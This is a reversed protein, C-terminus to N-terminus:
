IFFKFQVFRDKPIASKVEVLAKKEKSEDKNMTFEEFM